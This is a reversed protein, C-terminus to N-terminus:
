LKPQISLEQARKQLRIRRELLEALISEPSKPPTPLDPLVLLDRMANM